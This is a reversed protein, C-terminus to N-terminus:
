SVSKRTRRSVTRRHASHRALARYEEKKEWLILVDASARRRLFKVLAHNVVVLLEAMGGVGRPYFSIRMTAM